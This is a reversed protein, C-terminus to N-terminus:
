NAPPLPIWCQVVGNSSDVLTKGNAPPTASFTLWNGDNIDSAVPGVPCAINGEVSYVLFNTPRGDLMDSYSPRIPNFFAGRLGVANDSAKPLQSGYVSKLQNMFAANEDVENFWCKANKYGTGLCTKNTGNANPYERNTARYLILADKFVRVASAMQANRSRQQADGYVVVTLALLISITIVVVILEVITFGASSQRREHVPNRVKDGRFLEYWLQHRSHRRM